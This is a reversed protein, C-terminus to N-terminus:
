GAWSEGYVEKLIEDAGDKLLKKGVEAGIKEADRPAGEGSADIRRMGTPSIVVGKLTLKGSVTTVAGIPVQCGGGLQALLSREAKIRVMSDPHNISSLYEKGPFNKRTVIAIAGQGVAPPFLELPLEETIRDGFGLRRLGASSMVIADYKKSDLKRLRTDVNGRLERVKFDSRYHIIEAKRRLSSTGVITARPLDSIGEGNRSILADVINGREPVSAIELDDLMETPVDKMSHVAFDVEGGAVAEDIEKVFLGKGGIKALPADTIKDGTTKIIRKECVLNPFKANLLKAIIDVQALALKSGRTGVVFRM